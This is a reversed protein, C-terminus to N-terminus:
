GPVVRFGGYWYGYPRSQIGNQHSEPFSSQEGVIEVVVRGGGQLTIVGAHVGATCVSSDDTYPNSGWLRDSVTGNPPCEFAFREGNRGRYQDAETNWDTAPEVTVGGASRNLQAQLREREAGPVNGDDHSSGVVINVWTMGNPSGNCMIVAHHIDRYGAVSSGTRWFNGYGEALLGAEARRMCEDFPIPLEQEGRSMAPQAQAAAAVLLLGVSLAFSKRNM